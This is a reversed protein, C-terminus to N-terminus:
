AIRYSLVFVRFTTLILPALDAISDLVYDPSSRTIVEGEHGCLVGISAFLGANRAALIDTQSDGVMVTNINPTHLRNLALFIQEPDPKPNKIDDRSVLVDTYPELGTEKVVKELSRRSRSTVIGIGMRMAKIQKLTEITKPFLSNSQPNETEIGRYTECLPEPDNKPFLTHFTNALTMGATRPFISEMSPVPLGHKKATEQVLAIIQNKTDYLTGDLDLLVAEVNRM